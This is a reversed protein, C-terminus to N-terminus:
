VNITLGNSKCYYTLKKAISEYIEICDFSDIKIMMEGDSSPIKNIIKSIGQVM